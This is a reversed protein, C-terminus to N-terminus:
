QCYEIMDNEHLSLRTIPDMQNMLGKGHPLKHFACWAAHPGFLGSSIPSNPGRGGPSFAEEWLQPGIPSAGKTSSRIHAHLSNLFSSVWERGLYERNNCLAAAFIPHPVRMWVANQAHLSFVALSRILSLIQWGGRETQCLVLVQNAHQSAGNWVATWIVVVAKPHDSVIICQPPTPHCRLRIKICLSTFTYMLLWKKM